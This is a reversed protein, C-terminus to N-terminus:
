AKKLSKCIKIAEDRQEVSNATTECKYAKGDIERRMVLFYNAGLSGTNDFTILWGDALKEDKINKPDFLEAEKKAADITKPSDAKAPTVTLTVNALMVMVSGAMDTLNAGDSKSADYDFKLGLKDIKQEKTTAAAPKTDGAGQEKKAGDKPADKPAESATNCALALLAIGAFTLKKM